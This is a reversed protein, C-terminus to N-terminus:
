IFLYIFIKRNKKGKLTERLNYSINLAMNLVQIKSKNLFSLAMKLYNTKLYKEFCNTKSIENKFFIFSYTHQFIWSYHDSHM